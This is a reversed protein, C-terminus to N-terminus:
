KVGSWRKMKFKSSNRLFIKKEEECKYMSAGSGVELNLALLNFHNSLNEDLLILEKLTFRITMRIDVTGVEIENRGSNMM